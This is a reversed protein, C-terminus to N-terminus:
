PTIISINKVWLLECAGKGTDTRTQSSKWTWDNDNSVVNVLSGSMEIIDGKRINGIINKVSDSSPIIHINASHSEIEHRPIPFSKLRWYYFRRSQTIVIKELVSEDSMNGWGLALDTPSLSSERDFYYNEKSLVKAKINFTAVENITYADVSHSIPSIINKQQPKESVMVGPGLSVQSEYNYFKWGGVIILLFLIKKM